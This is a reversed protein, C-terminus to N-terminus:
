TATFLSGSLESLLENQCKRKLKTQSTKAVETFAVRMPPVFTKKKVQLSKLEKKQM